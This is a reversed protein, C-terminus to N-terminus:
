HKGEQEKAHLERHCRCCLIECKEMEEEVEKWKRHTAVASAITFIKDGNSHHFVLALACKNYGCIACGKSLKYDDIYQKRKRNYRKRIDRTKKPHNKRWERAREKTKERNLEYYQKIKEPNNERWKRNRERIEKFHNKRYEKM